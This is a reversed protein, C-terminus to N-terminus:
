DGSQEKKRPFISKCFRIAKRWFSKIFFVGGFLTAAIIQVVMSGTGPDLYAHIPHALILMFVLLPIGYMGQNHCRNKFFAM